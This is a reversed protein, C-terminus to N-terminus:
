NEKTLNQLTFEYQTSLIPMSEDLVSNEFKFQVWVLNKERMKRLFAKPFGFSASYTWLSYDVYEYTFLSRFITRLYKPAPTKDTMYSPTVSCKPSAKLDVYLRSLLKKRFYTGYALFKTLFWADIAVGDDNFKNSFKYILGKSSDGFYLDEGVEFFCSANVNTWKGYWTDLRFDWVYVNGNVCIGYRYDWVFSTANQINPEALLDKNIRDSLRDVIRQDRVNSTTLWYTGDVKDLFIPNNKVIQCSDKADCSAVGNIPILPFSVASGTLTFRSSWISPETEKHEKLIIQTDGLQSFATINASKLGVQSYNIDPFYTADYLGSYYRTNGSAMFIRTDNDGGFSVPKVTSLLIKDSYSESGNTTLIMYGTAGTTGKNYIADIKAGYTTSTFTINAGTGGLVWGNFTVAKIKTVITAVVDGNTIAVTQSIGNLTITVNSSSTATDIITLTQVQYANSITKYFTIIVNDIGGVIPAPIVATVVVIGLTRYVVFDTTEIKSLGNAIMTVLTADLNTTDLYYMQGTATGEIITTITGTVGQATSYTANTRVGTTTATFIAYDREGTVVWGTFTTNRIKRAVDYITDKDLVAVTIGSGNLTITINGSSTAGHTIVIQAIEKVGAVGDSIFSNKRGSGVLNVPELLTGGGTANPVAIVTTPIFAVSQVTVVNWYPDIQVYEAGNKYYLNLGMSFFYGANNTLSNYILVPDAVGSQKYLGTGWAFVIYGGFLAEYAGNIKTDGLSNTFIRQYGWRKDPFGAESLQINQADAMENEKIESPTVLKNVGSWASITTMNGQPDNLGYVYPNLYKGYPNPSNGYIGSGM